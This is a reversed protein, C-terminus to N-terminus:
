SSSLVIIFEAGNESNKASIEGKMNEIAAKAVSLGLGFEGDTGKYFREFIHPLDDENIGKGDDSVSIVVKSNQEKVSIVIKSKAHRLANSILHMISQKLLEENANVFLNQKSVDLVVEKGNSVAIGSISVVSNQIFENVDIKSKTYKGEFNEIRALSLVGDVIKTLRKTEELIVDMGKEKDEFVGQMMGEAYGQISTLPTRFEHSANQLFMKQKKDYNYIRENMENIEIALEKLEISKQNESVNLREISKMQKVTKSIDQIPQAIDKAIKQSVVIFVIASFLLIAVMIINVTDVFGDAFYGASIYIATQGEPLEEIDMWMAHYYEGNEYFSVIEEEASASTLEGAKQVVNTPLKDENGRSIDTYVGNENVIIQTNGGQELVSLLMHPPMRDNPNQAGNAFAVNQKLRAAARSLNEEAQNYSYISVLINFVVLVFIQIAIILIVYSGTIKQKLSLMKM